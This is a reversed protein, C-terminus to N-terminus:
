KVSKVKKGKLQLLDRTKKAANQMATEPTSQGSLAQSLYDQLIESAREYQPIVPRPNANDVIELMKGDKFHPYKKMIERDSFLKRRSPLYSSDMVFKRQIEESTFFEIAKWAEKPHQAKKAIGFGWGGLCAVTKPEINEDKDKEINKDKDKNPFISTLGVKGKVASDNANAKFWTNPWGRLFAAKGTLFDEEAQKETSSTIDSPSVGTVIAQRLFEVAKIADKSDIGVKDKKANDIWYSGHALLVESFTAILGEYQKGQWVYQWPEIKKEKLTNSVKIVESFTKPPEKVGARELLDRRYFIVGADSRFPIRYLHEEYRGLNVEQDLFEALAAPTINDDLERLIGEEAFKPLWILDMYILDYIPPNRQFDSSYNAQIADTTENGILQIHIHPNRNNFEEILPKWYDVEIDLVLLSLNVPWTLLLISLTAVQLAALLGLIFHKKYWLYNNRLTQVKGWFLNIM